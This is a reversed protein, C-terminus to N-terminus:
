PRIEGTIEAITERVYWSPDSAGRGFATDVDPAGRHRALTRFATDRVVWSDDRTRPLALAVVGEAESEGLGAVVLNRIAPDPHDLCERVLDYGPDTGSLFLAIGAHAREFDDGSGAVERLLGAAGPDRLRGLAQIELIRFYRDRMTDPRDLRLSAELAERLPAAARADGLLGLGRIAGARVDRRDDELLPLLADVAPAGLPVLEEVAADSVLIDDSQLRRLADELPDASAPGAVALVCGLGAAALALAPVCGLGAAALALTPSPRGSRRASAGPVPRLKKFPM